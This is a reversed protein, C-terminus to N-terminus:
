KLVRKLNKVILTRGSRKLISRIKKIKQVITTNPDDNVESCKDSIVTDEYERDYGDYKNLGQICYGIECPMACYLDEPDAGAQEAFQGLCCMYGENNLLRTLGKGLANVTGEGNDGCRWKECDLVLRQPLKKM